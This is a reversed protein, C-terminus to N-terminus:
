WARGTTKEVVQNVGISKLYLETTALKRHGLAVQIERVNFGEEALERAFTHRLGHPHVRRAIGARRGLRPLLQRVYSTQLPKASRTLFLLRSRREGREELWARVIGASKADLGVARVFAGRELGKPKQVRVELAGAGLERLDELRLACAEACRLGCRWLVVVLARNRTEDRGNCIRVLGAAEEMTLPDPPRKM